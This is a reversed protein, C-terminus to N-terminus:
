IIGAAHDRATRIPSALHEVLMMHNVVLDRAIRCYGAADYLKWHFSHLESKARSMFISPSGVNTVTVIEPV